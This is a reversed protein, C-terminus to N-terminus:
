KTKTKSNIKNNRLLEGTYAQLMQSVGSEKMMKEVEAERQQNVVKQNQHGEGKVFDIIVKYLSAVSIGYMESGGLVARKVVAQIEAFSISSAGYVDDNLLEQVLASAIFQVNTPDIEQGRYLFAQSVIKTMEFVAQDVPVTKIRPFRQPDARMELLSAKGPNYNVLAPSTTTKAIENSM